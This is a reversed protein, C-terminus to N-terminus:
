PGGFWHRCRATYLDRRELELAVREAELIGEVDDLMALRNELKKMRLDVVESLMRAVTGEQTLAEHIDHSLALGGLAAKKAENLNSTKSLAAETVAHVVNPDCSKLWDILFDNSLIKNSEDHADGSIPRTARHSTEPNDYEEKRPEEPIDMALFQNECDTSNAGGGVERAVCDWDIPMFDGQGNGDSEIKSRKRSQEMVAQVLAHCREVPWESTKKRKEKLAPPTPVSDYIADENILAYVGLFEHLRILSGADGPIARRAMTATLYRTALKQSIKIMKERTKIYTDTTRHAASGDFWEPLLTMEWSSVGDRNYWDPKPFKGKLDVKTETNPNPMLQEWNSDPIEKLGIVVPAGMAVTDQKSTASTRSAAAAPPPLVVSTVSTPQDSSTVTPHAQAPASTFMTPISDKQSKTHVSFPHSGAEITSSSVQTSSPQRQGQQQQNSDMTVNSQQGHTLKQERQLQLQQQQQQRMQLQESHAREQQELFQLQQQQKRQHEEQM